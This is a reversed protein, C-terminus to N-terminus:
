YTITAIVTDSYSGAQPYQGAAIEGYVPLPQAAGNGTQALTDTGITNGWNISYGGDKFLKYPLVNSNPGAMARTSVSGGTQGANLGVNYTTGNTCTVSISSAVQIQTGSYTGFGVTAPSILCTSQVLANITVNAQATTQAFAATSTLGLAVVGVMAISLVTLVTKSWKMSLVGQVAINFLNSSM